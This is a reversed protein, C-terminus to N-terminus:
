DIPLVSQVAPLGSVLLTWRADPNVRWVEGTDTGVLVHGAGEPAPAVSLICAASPSHDADGLDKWTDGGDTTQYLRSKAGGEDRHSAFATPACGITLAHPSRPDVCMPRTYPPSLNEWLYEWTKGGDKSRFAGAIREERPQPDDPYRGFGTTMYLVGPRAPDAAMVHIDGGTMVSTWSAGDDSTGLVGGVELGVWYREPNAADLVLTRARAGATSNPVCWKEAGPIQKMSDLEAWTEGGDRTRFLAAPQTGVYVTKEDGPAPAIDWVIKGEVGSLKWSRGGNKSVYVGDESGAFLSGNSARLSRIEHGALGEVEETAGSETATFVGNSTGILLTMTVRGSMM